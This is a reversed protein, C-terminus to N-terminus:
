ITGNVLAPILRDLNSHCIRYGCKWADLRAGRICRKDSQKRLNIRTGPWVLTVDVVDISLSFLSALAVRPLLGWLNHGTFLRAKTEPWRSEIIAHCSQRFICKGGQVKEISSDTYLM